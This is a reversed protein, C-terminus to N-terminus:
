QEAAFLTGPVDEGALAAALLGPVTGDLIWSGIGLRALALATELRLRMGGTVDTGAPAGVVKLVRRYSEADIRPITEGRRDYVGATEGLWLLRRVTHGWRRLRGILYRLVAETSLIAAGWRHDFVVDGFTVPVLRRDLAFLLPEFHGGAAPKGARATLASSPAWSFTPVGARVLAEVVLRHLRAAESQTAAIGAADGGYPGRGLGARAAAVHGFSGSGHGLVLGERMKRRGAAIEQALRGIVRRHARAEGRKDTLLSGGLKILVIETM